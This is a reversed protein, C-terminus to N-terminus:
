EPFPPRTAIPRPCNPDRCGDPRENDREVGCRACTATTDSSGNEKQVTM